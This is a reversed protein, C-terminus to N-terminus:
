ADEDIKEQKVLRSLSHDIGAVGRDLAAADIDALHVDFGAAAAVQSIGHGMTGAGVVGVTRIETM